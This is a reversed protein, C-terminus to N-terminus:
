EGLGERRLPGLNLTIFRQGAQRAEAEVQAAWAPYDKDPLDDPPAVVRIELPRRSEPPYSAGELRSLRRKM